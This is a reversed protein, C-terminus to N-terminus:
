LFLFSYINKEQTMKGWIFAADHAFVVLMFVTNFTSYFNCWNPSLKWGGHTSVHERSVLDVGCENFYYRSTTSHSQSRYLNFIFICLGNLCGVCCIAYSRAVCRLHPPRLIQWQAVCVDGINIGGDHLEVRMGVVKGWQWRLGNDRWRFHRCRRRFCLLSDM